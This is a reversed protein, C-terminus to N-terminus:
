GNEMVNSVGEENPVVHIETGTDFKVRENETSYDIEKAIHVQWNTGFMKNVAEAGRKRCDLMDALNLLLLSTDAEVEAQVTNNRKEFASRVGIDSYFSKILKERTEIIDILNQATKRDTGMFQLGLNGLDTVSGFKGEYLRSFYEDLSQKQKQNTAVPVGGSDRANILTSILTVDNHALRIAYYHVLEYAPNRLANNDIVVVDEGIKRSGSYIPCRVNCHTWEDNYKSVGYFSMFMATLGNMSSDSLESLNTVACMGSLLLRQEIEKPKISKSFDDSLTNEWVFLRMMREFLQDRWYKYTDSFTSSQKALTSIVRGEKSDMFKLFSM